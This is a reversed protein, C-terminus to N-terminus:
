AKEIQMGGSTTSLSIRAKGMGCRVMGSRRERTGTVPFGCDFGGSVTQYEATFGEATEPILLSLEGSVSSCKLNEPLARLVLGAKGSTTKVRAGRGATGEFRVSGSVSSLNLVEAVDGRAEIKGSTSFIGATAASFDGILKGSVTSLKLDEASLSRADIRGSTSSLSIRQGQLDSAIIEGSVSHVSLNGGSLNALSVSASVSGIEVTELHQVARPLEIVLRKSAMKFFPWRFHSRNWAIRLAGNVMSAEMKEGDSLPRRAYETVRIQEGEGHYVEISGSMWEIDLSRVVGELGPYEYSLGEPSEVPIASVPPVPPAPPVPPVPPVPPAPPVPPVPPVPPEPIDAEEFIEALKEEMGEPYLTLTPVGKNEGRAEWSAEPEPAPQQVASGDEEEGLAELLRHADEQSIIGAELMSLVKQKGENVIREERGM